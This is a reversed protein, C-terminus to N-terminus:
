RHHELKANPEPLAVQEASWPRQLQVVVEVRVTLATLLRMMAAAAVTYGRIGDRGFLDRDREAVEADRLLLETLEVLRALEYRTCQRDELAEESGVV